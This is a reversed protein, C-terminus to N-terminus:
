FGRKTGRGTLGVRSLYNPRDRWNEEVKVHLQLYVERQLFEEVDKRAAEGIEKIAKGQKGILMGKQSSREVVVEADIFDKGESREEFAVINVQTSYPIEERFREFIKERVIEAVFFREPHESILDRPYLPPGPPLEEVIRDVLEEVQYGTLASIPLASVFSRQERHAGILSQAKEEEVLDTKNVALITPRGELHRLVEERPKEDRADALYIVLDAEDIAGKAVHMMARHLGYRPDILGPTDLFIIQADEQSRIGLVRHRTTQPKETVISIKQGLIRNLLTSKGVNPRGVLAVYGSRHDEPVTRDDILDM